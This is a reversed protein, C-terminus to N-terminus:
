RRACMARPAWPIAWTMCSCDFFTVLDLDKGPFDSAMAVEFKTNGAAGHQEAHVRAQRRVSEPHFDYGVFTSKPFAKAMIITSFGDVAVLTWGSERRKRTERRRRRGPGAALVSCSQQSLRPPLLTGSHLVPM